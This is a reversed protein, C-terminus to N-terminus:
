PNRPPSLVIALLALGAGIVLFEFPVQGLNLGITHRRLWFHQLPRLWLAVGYVLVLLVGILQWSRGDQTRGTGKHRVHLYEDLLFCAGLLGFATVSVYVGRFLSLAVAFAGLYLGFKLPNFGFAQVPQRRMWLQWGLWALVPVALLWLHPVLNHM